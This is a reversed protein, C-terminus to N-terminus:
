ENKEQGPHMKKYLGQSPTSYCTQWTHSSTVVNMKKKLGGSVRVDIIYFEGM